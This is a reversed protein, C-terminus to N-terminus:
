SLLVIGVTRRDRHQVVGAAQGPTSEDERTPVRRGIARAGTVCGPRGDPDARGVECEKGHPGRTRWWIARGCVGSGVAGDAGVCPVVVGIPVVSRRRVLAAM